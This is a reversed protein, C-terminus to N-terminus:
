SDSKFQARNILAIKSFIRISEQMIEAIIFGFLGWYPGVSLIVIMYAIVAIVNIVMKFKVYGFSLILLDVSVFSAYLYKYGIFLILLYLYKSFEQGFIPGLWFHVTGVFVLYLPLGLVLIIIGLKISVELSERKKGDAIKKALEPYLSSYISNLIKRIISAFQTFIKYASVAEYSLFKSIFIKDFKNVPLSITSELNTWIGFIIFEKTDVIKSKIWGNLNNRKMVIIAFIILISYDIIEVSILVISFPFFRLKLIYSLGVLILKVFSGIVRYSALHKFKGLLRLIGRPTGTINFLISFTYIRALLIHVPEWNLYEGIIGAFVFSFFAGLLASLFDFIFGLKIYSKLLEKDKNIVAKSGFKILAHWCQFNFFMNFIEVYTQIIVFIGYYYSGMLKITLTFSVLGFLSGLMSGSLITSTNKILDKFFTQKLWYFIKNKFAM